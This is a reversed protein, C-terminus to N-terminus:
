TGNKIEDGSIAITGKRTGFRFYRHVARGAVEPVVPIQCAPQVINEKAVIQYLM